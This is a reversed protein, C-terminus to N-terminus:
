ENQDGYWTRILERTIAFTLAVMVPLGKSTDVTTSEFREVVETMILQTIARSISADLEGPLEEFLGELEKKQGLSLDLTSIVEDLEETYESM